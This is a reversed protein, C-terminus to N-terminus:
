TVTWGGDVILNSGTVYSSAPSALFAIPGRLESPRGPRRMLNRDNIGALLKENKQAEPSPFAGPTITNVRIQYKSLNAATYKSLQILAAKAAGYFPPNYSQENEYISFDPSVVGYMSSINIISKNEDKLNKMFSLSNKIMLFASTVAIEYSDRFNQSTATEISGAGGAYANNVLINLKKHPYSAFYENIEIESRVDFVAEEVDLGKAKMETHLARVKVGNRGQLIVKAGHEALEYSMERGLHGTAGTILAVMGNLSFLDHNKNM